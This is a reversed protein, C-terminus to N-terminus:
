RKSLPEGKAFTLLQNALDGARLSAQEISKLAARVEPALSPDDLLVSSNGLVATLLNNFDHAIGGAVLGLADLRSARLKDKEQRKRKTIDQFALIMGDIRSITLSLWIEEGGRKRALIERPPQNFHDLQGFWTFLDTAHLQRAEQETWELIEQAKRNFLVVSGDHDVVIVGDGIDRLTVALRDKSIEALRRSNFGTRLASDLSVSGILAILPAAVGLLTMGGIVSPTWSQLYSIYGFCFSSLTLVSLGLAGGVRNPYAGCVAVICFGISWYFPTPATSDVTGASAGSFFAVSALTIHVLAKQAWFASRFALVACTGLSATNCVSFLFSKGIDLPSWFWHLLLDVLFTLWVCVIGLSAGILHNGRWCEALYDEYGCVAEPPDLKSLLYRYLRSKIM